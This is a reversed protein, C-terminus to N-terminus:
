GLEPLLRALFLLGLHVVTEGELVVALVYLFNLKVVVRQLL